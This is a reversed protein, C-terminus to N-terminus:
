VLSKRDQLRNGLASALIEAIRRSRPDFGAAAVLLCRREIGGFYENVFTHVAEDYHAIANEWHARAMLDSACVDSSWDSIRVEDATKQKVFFFFVGVGVM